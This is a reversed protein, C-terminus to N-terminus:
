NGLYGEEVKTPDKEEDSDLKPSDIIDDSDFDTEHNILDKHKLNAEM